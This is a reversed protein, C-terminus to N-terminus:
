ASAIVGLPILYTDMLFNETVGLLDVQSPSIRKKSLGPQVIFIKLETRYVKTMNKIELIKDLDGTEIRTGGKEDQRKEERLCLHHFLETPKEIWHISKQAQACVEHLDKFRGGAVDKTSYKCHYFEVRIVKETKTVDEVKVAVVDAAENSSDDDFILDYKEEQLKEIVRRQISDARREIRQSEKRIDVGDDWNWVIINEKKYPILTKISKTFKSGSLKSGDIFWISPVYKNFFQQASLAQSHWKVLVKPTNGDIIRFDKKNNNEYLQLAFQARLEESVVEFTLEGDETPNVLNIDVEYLQREINGGFIFTVSTESDKYIDEHWDVGFPMLNPRESVYVSVLTNKLFDNPDISDDLVKKGISSCWKTLTNLRYSRGHSWIRGKRSCGISAREGNEFGTGVLVSKKAKQKQLETLVAAVDAGMRGTYSVFRGLEESLGVNKFTLRNINGLCRFLQEGKILEADVGAVAQALKKYESTNGSSNIFLLKQAKDWYVVYLAWDWNFVDEVPTWDLPVKKATVIILTNQEHNIDPSVKDFSDVGVMGKAFNEPTWEECKTKYIVTSLAPRLSSIPIEKPFNKFGDAYEALDLQEQILEETLEPLLFNWDTDQYYFKKLKNRVSDDGINAIFTADGLDDRFRTFRGALQITVTSSKRIDHFAAIKLEPLDFGEGLMDVCVVIKSEGSLLRGKIEDREKKPIGTHIQVPNFEAYKEYIAFVEKARPINNVRAMLIHKYDKLDERLQQVALEAIAEDRKKPAFVRVPKFNIKTFYKKEQARQLPYKFIIAGDIQKDDERFPTATFQLIRCSEFKEKFKKWTSAAVHHAEDIFLSCCHHAMRKQIIGSSQGAIQSTTIVVNCKEFFTDVEETTKPKHSLIGVVPYFASESVVGCGKLIGLTLFKEAIQTRLADTPVIVMVRKCPTSVLVSVMTETKGTGTPMVITAPDNTVAWHGQINHLAGIQPERLGKINEDLNEQSYSFCNEWSKIIDTTLKSHTTNAEKSNPHTLWTNSSLDLSDVCEDIQKQTVLIIRSFTDAM